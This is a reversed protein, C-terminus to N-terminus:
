SPNLISKMDFADSTLWVRADGQRIFPRRTLAVQNDILDIDFWADQEFNFVPEVSTMVLPSHTVAILQVDFPTTLRDMVKMLAPIVIRQWKPHLHSEVEDM